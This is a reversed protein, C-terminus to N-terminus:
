GADANTLDTGKKYASPSQGTYQKFIANFTTKSNFGSDLAIRLVTHERLDPNRLARAAYQVRYENIFRYFNGGSERNIVQSVVHVPLNARRAFETLNLEPELFIQSDTAFKRITQLYDSTEAPALRTRAYKVHSGVDHPPEAIGGITPATEFVPLRRVTAPHLIAFYGILYILVIITLYFGTAFREAAADGFVFFVVFSATAAGTAIMLLLNLNRLWRLELRRDTSAHYERLRTRFRLLRVLSAGMYALIVPYMGIEIVVLWWPLEFDRLRQIYAVETLNNGGIYTLTVILYLPYVLGHLLSKYAPQSETETRVGTYLYILPGYLFGFPYTFIELDGAFANNCLLLYRQFVDVSCLFALLAPIRAAGTEARRLGLLIALFFGQGAALLLATEFISHM